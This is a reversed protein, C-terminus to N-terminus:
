LARIQSPSFVSYKGKPHFPHIFPYVHLTLANNCLVYCPFTFDFRSFKKCGPHQAQPNKIGSTCFFVTAKHRISFTHSFSQFKFFFLLLFTNYFLRRFFFMCFSFTKLYSSADHEHVTSTVICDLWARIHVYVCVSVCKGGYLLSFKCPVKERVLFGESFITCSISEHIYTHIFHFSVNM